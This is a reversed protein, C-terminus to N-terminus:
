VNPGSLRKVIQAFDMRDMNERLWVALGDDSTYQYKEIEEMAADAGDMNYAECAAKLNSLVGADPMEKKPKPNEADIASIMADLDGAFERATEIFPGNHANIYDLDSNKSAKELREAGKGLEEAFIGYSAGKLSHVAREYEARSDKGATEILDIMSHVAAAYSRLVKLYTEEDGEYRELGKAINLGTVNKNSFRASEEPHATQQAAKLSQLRRANEVVEPPYKDRVFKNLLGNLRRVDIPKSIFEDFGNQLFIDAQGSVANATLAIIPDTYGLKRLYKTAMIGDMEPMMHDMFIIDYKQGDKIKDIAERGSMATDIQLRYLKMLGVAVYLNTDVDDVVLVNGYPMPDRTFQHGGWKKRTIYNERFQRLNAAVQEGLIQSDVTSQPLRVTFQTGTGPKSEASIKGGMLNVLRQTIALGLGTGETTRATGSNFRSYEDFMKNLQEKTMGHGTDRVNLLLDVCNEKGPPLESVVSLTIKGSDTYKFANSLLNNLIQKIRFEDGILKAPLKEDVELEFEIPVSEIRMMNLHVSDNILSAVDYEEPFINLKGAEIKSFDLIDNIICLLLNCSTHIKNLGDLAEQPLSDDQVLMETIGFIANMPTRIEHSMNALFASKSRSAALATEAMEKRKTIDHAISMVGIAEGNIMLPIKTIEYFPKTGNLGPIQEESTTIRNERMVERNKESLRAITDAPLGIGAEEDNLGIIDNMNKGFYRLFAQNCHMYRLDTNKTFLLDPISDFLTTLTTTQLALEHTRKAVLAQRNIASVMMLSVSRLIAIEDEKFSRERKCDDVCFLGWFKEDLFLPIIVTSQIEYANLYEQEVPLMKSAPGSVHKKRIFKNKWRYPFDDNMVPISEKQRGTESLWIYTLSFPQDSNELEGRWIHVRDANISRGVREMSRTLSVEIDENEDTTLLTTAVKNVAQLLNDRDAIDRMMEEHERIDRTYSVVVDEEGYKARVLTIEASLPIGTSPIRHMWTFFSQGEEFANNVLARIKEGSLQGDPQYRPSCETTFKEIYEQKNKFGFLKVGAENCDITELDRSWIQACLPSTDLMLMTRENAEDLSKEIKAFASETNKVVQRIILSSALICCCGILVSLLVAIARARKLGQMLYDCDIGMGIAGIVKGSSDHFPFHAVYVAGSGTNILEDKLVVENNLCQKLNPTIENEVPSGAHHFLSDSKELGDMVYVLEGSSNQKATYLYKINAIRRIEDLKSHANTYIDSKEDEITNIEYFSRADIINEAYKHTNIADEKLKNIALTHFQRYTVYYITTSLLAIILLLAM